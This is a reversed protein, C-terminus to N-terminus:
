PRLPEVDPPGALTITLEQGQIEYTPINLELRLGGSTEEGPQKGFYMPVTFGDHYWVYSQQPWQDMFRTRYACWCIWHYKLDILGYGEVPPTNEVDDMHFTGAMRVGQIGTVHPVAFLILVSPKLPNANHIWFDSNRRPFEEPQAEPKEMFISALHRVGARANNHDYLYNGQIWLKHDGPADHSRFGVMGSGHFSLKGEAEPSDLLSVKPAKPDLLVDIWKINRFNPFGIYISGDNRQTFSLLKYSSDPCKMYLRRDSFVKTM